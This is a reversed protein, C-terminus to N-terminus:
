FGYKVLRQNFATKGGELIKAAKDRVNPVDIAGQFELPMVGQGDETEFVGIWEADGFVPINANHTAFIFQRSTKASRLEAVIRDAIFANDLNDEPQDMILPDVNQLLLLHLIATCQQGTSLKDLEKYVEAGDHATNLEIKILDALEIEELHLVKDNPLQTLAQAVTNTIGWGLDKLADTGQRIREALLTPSFNDADKIWALRGTAIGELNCNLLFQNIPTRDGEPIITLKLKGKLRKNLKKLNRAFEATREARLTSLSGLLKKRESALKDVVSKKDKITQKKPNIEELQQLLNQYAIGIQKGSKGETAPLTNFKGELTLEDKNIAEQLSESKKDLSEKNPIFKANWQSIMTEADSKMQRLITEIETLTDSHPLNSIEDQEFCSLEPFSGTVELVADNLKKAQSYISDRLLRKEKELLPMVKLTDEIGLKKYQALQEEIKPIKEVDDELDSVAENALSLKNRNERLQEIKDHIDDIEREENPSIFRELLASQGAASQAIEYIENQGYIEIEPLLDTTSFSSPNKDEDTVIPSEGSRRAIFFRKGQMVSSRITLRVQAKSKVINEKIIDDHQKIANKGIPKMDLAFRICELLTSKGTGRGGIVANLHESFDISLNDLYGGVVELKEIQSYFEQSVDSNLRIRSEHDQFALKFSEFSPVTMKVLCSAKINALDDPKAVDRANILAIPWERKYEPTINKLIRHYGINKENKLNDLTSPIQAATLATNKWVHQMKQKLIGSDETCHAAFIFGGQEVVKNILENGGLDAPIVGNEPNGHGLAGLFRNLQDKTTNEPYLCVFHVKETSALEFGPFVIIDNDNMLKRISDVSDVNGHDALGIVKIDNDLATKLLESNYEEESLGHSDGRYSIYGAPNVQLACKWFKAQNFTRKM